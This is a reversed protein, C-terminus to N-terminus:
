WYNKLSNKRFKEFVDASLLVDYKLYLDYYDKMTKMEFNDWINLVNEFGKSSIKRDNLLSYFREKM